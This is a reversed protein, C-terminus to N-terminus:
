TGMPPLFFFFFFFFLCASLEALMESMSPDFQELDENEEDDSDSESVEVFPDFTHTMKNIVKVRQVTYNDQDRDLREMEKVAPHSYMM